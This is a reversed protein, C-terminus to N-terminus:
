GKLAEAALRVDQARDRKTILIGQPTSIVVLDGVGILAVPVEQSNVYCDVSDFLAVRGRVVNGDEDKAGLEWLTAFSGVDSWGMSVPVVAGHSTPEM